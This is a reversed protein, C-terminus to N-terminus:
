EGPASGLLSSLWSAGHWPGREDDIIRHGAVGDVHQAARRQLRDQDAGVVDAALDLDIGVVDGGLRADRELRRDVAEVGTHGEHVVDHAAVLPEVGALRRDDTERQLAHDRRGRPRRESVALWEDQGGLARELQPPHRPGHRHARLDRPELLAVAGGATQGAVQEVDHRAEVDGQGDEPDVRM